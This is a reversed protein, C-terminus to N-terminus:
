TLNTKLDLVNLRIQKTGNFNDSTLTYCIDLHGPQGIQLNIIDCSREWAIAPLVVNGARVKFKLHDKNKGIRRPYGVVELGTSAFIPEPNDPGFPQLKSLYNVIQLTIENLDALAEIKLTPQFISDPLSAAYENISHEFLPIKDPKIKVGAAYRHGGFNILHESTNKLAEYLNFGSVSRASGKGIDPLLSILICPRWFEDVLKSAVIGIIGENWHPQALVLVRKDYKAHTEILRRAENLIIDEQQQRIRNLQELQQALSRATNEDNTLLLELATRAHSVRGAANIRPALAFAIDRPSLKKSHLRSVELLMRFGPRESKNLASIGLRALIRNEGILPVIDAITALGVLDLLAILEEKARNLSALLQWALKFAVGAGALERFPYNSDSRKPNVFALAPPHLKGPEHHDTVIVDIGARYAHSLNEIDTSGCDNTIMVRFHNKIAFEVGARSVGYGETHRHPLYYNVLAGIQKLTTVLIATGCIGDVDYDGYVLIPEKNKVADLIRETALNIDPLTDPRHLRAPSPNLFAECDAPTKCGRNYLLTAILIPLGTACALETIATSESVPLQWNNQPLILPV